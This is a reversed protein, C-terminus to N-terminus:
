GPRVLIRTNAPSTQNATAAIANIATNPGRRVTLVGSTIPIQVGTTTAAATDFDIYIVNPGLNQITVEESQANNDALLVTTTTQVDVAAM